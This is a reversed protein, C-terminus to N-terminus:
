QVSLGAFIGHRAAKETWDKKLMESNTTSGTRVNEGGPTHLMKLANKGFSGFNKLVKTREDELRWILSGTDETREEEFDRIRAAVQPQKVFVDISM